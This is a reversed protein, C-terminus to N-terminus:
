CYFNCDRNLPLRYDPRWNDRDTEWLKWQARGYVTELTETLWWHDCQDRCDGITGPLLWRDGSTKYDGITEELWWYDRGTVVTELPKKWDGATEMCNLLSFPQIYFGSGLPPDVSGQNSRYWMQEQAETCYICMGRVRSIIIVCQIFFQMSIDVWM